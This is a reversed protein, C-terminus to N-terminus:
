EELELLTDFLDDLEGKVKGIVDRTIMGVEDQPIPTVEGNRNFQYGFFDAPDLWYEPEIVKEVEKKKEPFQTGLYHAYMLLSLSFLIYPSHTILTVGNCNKVLFQVLKFQEMPFLHQEPEEIVFRHKVEKWGKPDEKKFFNIVGRIYLELLTTSQVGSSLDKLEWGSRNEVIVMEGLKNSKIEFEIGLIESKFRNRKEMEEKVLKFFNKIYLPPDEIRKYIELREPGVYRLFNRNLEGWFLEKMFIYIGEGLEPSRKEVFKLLLNGLTTGLGQQLRKLQALIQPEEKFRYEVEWKEWEGPLNFWNGFDHELLSSLEKRRKENAIVTELLAEKVRRLRGLNYLKGTLTKGVGNPGIFLNVKGLQLKAERIPGCNRLELQDWWRKEFSEM